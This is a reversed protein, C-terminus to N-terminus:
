SEGRERMAAREMRRVEAAWAKRQRRNDLAVYVWALAFALAGFGILYYLPTM